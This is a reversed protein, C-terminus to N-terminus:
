QFVTTMNTSIQVRLLPICFLLKAACQCEFGGPDDVHTGEPGCNAVVDETGSCYGTPFNTDSGATTDTCTCAACDAVIEPRELLSM